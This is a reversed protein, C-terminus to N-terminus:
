VEGGNLFYETLDIMIEWIIIRDSFSVNKKTIIMGLKQLNQIGFTQCLIFYYNYQISSFVILPRM